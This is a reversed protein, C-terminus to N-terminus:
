DDDRTPDYRLYLIRHEWDDEFAYLLRAYRLFKSPNDRAAEKCSELQDRISPWRLEHMCYELLEDAGRPLDEVVATFKEVLAPHCEPHALVYELLDALLPEYQNVGIAIPAVELVFDVKDIARACRDAM